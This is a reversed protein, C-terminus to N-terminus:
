RFDSCTRTCSRHQQARATGLMSISEGATLGTTELFSRLHGRDLRINRWRVAIQPFQGDGPLGPSPLLIRTMYAAASPRHDFERSITSRKNGMNLEASHM